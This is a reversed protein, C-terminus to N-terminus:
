GVTTGIGKRIRQTDPDHEQCFDRGATAELECQVLEGDVFGIKTCRRLVAKEKRRVLDEKGEPITQGPAPFFDVMFKPHELLWDTVFEEEGEKWRNAKAAHATDFTRTKNGFDAVLGPVLKKGLGPFFEFTASRIVIKHNKFKSQFIM